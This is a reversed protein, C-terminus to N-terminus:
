GKGRGYRVIGAEYKYVLTKQHEYIMNFNKM